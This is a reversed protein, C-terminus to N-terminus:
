VIKDHKVRKGHPTTTAESCTSTSAEPHSDHVRKRNVIHQSPPPMPHVADYMLKKAISKMESDQLWPHVLAEKITLRKEPDVVLLKKVLDLAPQSVDKWAAPIFTYHGGTIQDKLPMKCNQESFPPYGGLCVFLIVGLSWYDVASSYGATGATTLVEPALYTPTGCLTRMLSTEGLIKSQGFDTIKVCCEENASSLLVNELKLDRHIVGNEHLYEVALLIQYFFLKATSEKLRSTVVRDFLEGGEMLELVIYFYDDSYFFNEIEIICPHNLKKLIEIETDVSIPQDLSATSMRFARKSIVKVAVKKCTSKEFALKVEGCAGSGITKSMIYKDRFEVPYVSQDDVLLDTFVFVKNTPLSLAIEANNTLPLKKGRGIIQKNLFTGNGSLDEIYAVASLGPGAERFIRFHKKSYTKYRETQNIIPKDFTYDCHKDRGFVYEENVCDHNLFGKGLAWLRGWPQPSQDEMEVDEPISALDQLPVTDLSSLTGSSSSQSYSQPASSSSSSTGQSQQSEGKTDRSM